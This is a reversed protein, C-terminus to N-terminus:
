QGLTVNGLPATISIAKNYIGVASYHAPQILMKSGATVNPNNIANIFEMYPELFTGTQSGIHTIDVFHWHDEPYLFNLTLSDLFSIHSRQGIRNQWSQNPALVTITRQGNNSFDFQGYHMMSDFDYTLSDPLGYAQKPYVGAHNQKTFQWTTDNSTGMNQWNIQIFNDRDSRSQEHWIGLAHFLEHIIVIKSWWSILGITQKGEQMGIGTSYNFSDSQIHIYNSENIRPIFVIHADGEIEAMADLMRDQNNASVNANFEFPVIGDPWLNVNFAAENNEFYDEPLLIDGEFLMYGEPIKLPPTMEGTQSAITQESYEQPLYTQAEAVRPFLAIGWGSILLTLLLPNRYKM